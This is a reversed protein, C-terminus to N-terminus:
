VIMRTYIFRDLNFISFKMPLCLANDALLPVLHSQGQRVSGLCSLGSVHKLFNFSIAVVVVKEVEKYNRGKQMM